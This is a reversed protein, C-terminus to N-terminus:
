PPLKAAQDELMEAIKELEGARGRLAKKVADDSASAAQRLHTAGSRAREAAALLETRKWKEPEPM